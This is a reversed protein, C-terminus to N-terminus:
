SQDFRLVVRPSPHIHPMLQKLTDLEFYRGCKISTIIVDTLIVTFDRGPLIREFSKKAWAGFALMM